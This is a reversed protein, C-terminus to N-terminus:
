QVTEEYINLDRVEVDQFLKIVQGSNFISREYEHCVDKKLKKQKERHLKKNRWSNNVQKQTVSKIEFYHSPLTIYKRKSEAELTHTAIREERYYVFIYNDQEKIVIEKGVYKSPCSYYNGKFSFHCDSQVKRYYSKSLDYLKGTIKILNERQFREIPKEYTSCHIQNNVKNIWLNAETNIDKISKFERGNYFNERVFRVTNEVKGKTQPRYPQSLIAKFGYYGSFELFEKNFESDSQKFARKIVVSKLNDYLIERPYGGFHKFALNHGTLFNHSDDSKFFYIYKMRSFGLVMIFCCLRIIKREEHDYFDGFYAWDVQAQEGPITEFRLVAKTKYESKIKKCYKNVMGYKGEYGQSILEEFIRESTLNYKNLRDDIYKKFDDLISIKQKRKYKPFKDNKLTNRITKRDIRLRRAIESITLGSKKLERILKWETLNLMSGEM